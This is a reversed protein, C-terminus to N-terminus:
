LGSNWVPKLRQFEEVLMVEIKKSYEKLKYTDNRTHVTSWYKTLGADQAKSHRGENLIASSAASHLLRWIKVLFEIYTTIQGKVRPSWEVFHIGRLSQYKIEYSNGM